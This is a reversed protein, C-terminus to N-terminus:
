KEIKRNSPGSNIKMGNKSLMSNSLQREQHIMRHTLIKSLLNNQIKLYEKKNALNNIEYPDDLMNFLLPPLSPFHVYKWKKTRIVSLNCEEPALEENQVFSTYHNERFDWDFIVYEKLTTKNPSNKITALLSQGNWDTPISTELWDLITPAIDVSETFNNIMQAEEGPIHIILPIRYSSDWWGSKGWQKNEGLMEGHDSTFIIMTNEYYKTEKLAQIIKGINDDVEACMGFYVSKINRIDKDNLDSFRIESFNDENVYRKLIEKFVPHQNSMEEITKEMFPLDIDDPNILSHWPESVYMPPHPRLFSIHM